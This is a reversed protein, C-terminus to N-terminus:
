LINNVRPADWVVNGGVVGLVAYDPVGATKFQLDASAGNTGASGAAFEIVSSTGHTTPVQLNKVGTAARTGANYADVGGGKAVIVWIPDGTDQDFARKIVVVDGTTANTTFSAGAIPSLATGVDASTRGGSVDVYTGDAKPTVEKWDYFNTAPSGTLRVILTSPAFTPPRIHIGSSDVLCDLGTMNRVIRVLDGFTNLDRASVYPDGDSYVKTDDLM